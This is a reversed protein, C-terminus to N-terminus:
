FRTRVQVSFTRPENLSIFKQGVWDSGTLDFLRQKVTRNTLNSGMLAVEWGGDGSALAIRGNILAYENVRGDPHNDLTLYSSGRLLAEGYFSLETAGLPVRYEANINSTYSPAHPIRRLPEGNPTTGEEYEAEQISFNLGLTLANTVRGQIDGEFGLSHAKGGNIFIPDYLDPTAPNDVSLQINGWKMLFAAFNATLRRDFAQTKLGAEYNWTIEPAFSIDSAEGLADNFGGSKFGKSVTAYALVDDTFRYRLNVSPTFQKWSDKDKVAFDGGLLGLPDSQTYDISKKEITYRSGLSLTLRRAIDWDVNGFLAYSTTDLQAQSGIQLGSISPDGFADAMDPGIEVFSQNNTHQRFYYGGLIWQLPGTSFGFRLEESLRWVSEPDGDYLLRLPSRDTDTRSFYDHDRYATVNTVDVKGIRTKLIASVGM